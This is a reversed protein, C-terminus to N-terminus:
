RKAERRRERDREADPRRIYLPRVASPDTAQDCSARRAAIRGISGALLGPDVLTAEPRRSRILEAYRAAGSGAFWMIQQDTEFREWRELTQAPDGVAPAELQVPEASEAPQGPGARYLASYVEGRSADTWVGVLAGAPVHGHAVHALADLTSVAVVPRAVVLALGQITAIGVRLGTFSGPGAAVAFLDLDSLKVGQQELLSLLGGPLWEAPLRLPDAQREAVIHDREILAISGRRSTTDLALVRV